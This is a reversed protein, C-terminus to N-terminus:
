DRSSRRRVRSYGPSCPTACRKMLSRPPRAIQEEPVEPPTVPAAEGQSPSSPETRTRHQFARFEEFQELLKADIKDPNKALVERGRGSIEVVGHKPQSLLGAQKLYTKAWHIRTAIVTSMGSPTRIDREEQSLGLDDAVRVILDRMLWTKEACHRLVPLMLTDYPPIMM